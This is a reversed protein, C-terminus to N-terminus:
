QKTQLFPPLQLEKEIVRPLMENVMEIGYGEVVASDFPLAVTNGFGLKRFRHESRENTALMNNAKVDQWEFRLTVALDLTSSSMFPEQTTAEFHLIECNLIIPSGAPDVLTHGAKRLEAAVAERVIDTVPKDFRGIDGNHANQYYDTPKMGRQDSVTGIALSVKKVNPYSTNYSPQYSIIATTKCGTSLVLIGLFSLWVFACKLNMTREENRQRNNEFFIPAVVYFHAPIDSWTL